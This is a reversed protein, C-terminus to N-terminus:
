EVVNKSKDIFKKKVIDVLVEQNGSKAKAAKGEVSEPDYVEVKGHEYDIFMPFTLGDPGFRNKMVHFRGTNTLKDTLKRSISAIFDSVFVKSFSEAIKDAEIVDDNLASRQTQTATWIPLQLEGALTRINEYVIGLDSYRNGTKEMPIMLDAYDIMIIDPKFGIGNLRHIHAALTATTATKTPYYKIQLDGHILNIRDKVVDLHNPLMAPVIGTTVCDYRKSLYEDSLEFSYHLVKKGQILFHHALKVLFWSKGAGSPAMIVGIEGSGLGGDMIDSICNWPMKIANRTSKTYRQEVTEKWNMGYDRSEGSRIAKDILSKIKGYDGTELLDASKLIANKLEQNKCFSIFENKIYALDNSNMLQYVQKLENKILTYETDNLEFFKQLESKFVELTPVGKYQNYYHLVTKTIWQNATSEFYLPSVIDNYQEIFKPDTIMASIVKSQFVSGYKDLTEINEM